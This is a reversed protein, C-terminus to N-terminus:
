KMEKITILSNLKLAFVHMGMRLSLVLVRSYVYLFAHKCDMKFKKMHKKM